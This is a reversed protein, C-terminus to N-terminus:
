IEEEEEIIRVQTASEGEIRLSVYGEVGLPTITVESGGLVFTQSMQHYAVGGIAMVVAADM